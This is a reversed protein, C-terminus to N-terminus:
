CGAMLPGELQMSKLRRYEWGAWEPLTVKFEIVMLRQRRHTKCACRLWEGTKRNQLYQGNM